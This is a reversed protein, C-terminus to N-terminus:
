NQHQNFVNAILAIQKMKSPKNTGFHATQLWMMGRFYRSAFGELPHLSWTPRFLSYGFMEESPFYELMDSYGMKLM